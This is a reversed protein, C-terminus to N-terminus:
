AYKRLKVGAVGLGLIGLLVAGPVPVISGKVEGGTLFPDSGDPGFFQDLTGTYGFKLTWITGQRYADPGLVTIQNATGSPNAGPDEANGVFVWPDGRNVLITPPNLPQLCGEIKLLMGDATIRTSQVDAEVAYDSKDTDTFGFTGSASWNDAGLPTMELDLTLNFANGLGLFNSLLNSVIVNDLANGAPDDLELYLQSTSSEQVLLRRASRSYDLTASGMDYTVAAMDAKAPGACLCSVVISIHILFFIKKSMIIKRLM